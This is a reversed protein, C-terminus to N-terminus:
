LVFSFTYVLLIFVFDVYFNYTAPCVIFSFAFMFRM